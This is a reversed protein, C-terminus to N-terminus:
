IDRANGLHATFWFPQGRKLGLLVWELEIAQAYFRARRLLREVEPYAAQLQAVFSAGYTQLLSGVDTAPDGLGAVGFDIV